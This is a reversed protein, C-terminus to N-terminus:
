IISLSNLTTCKVNSPKKSKRPQMFDHGPHNGDKHFFSEQSPSSSSSVRQLRNRPSVQSSSKFARIHNLRILVSSLGTQTFTSIFFTQASSCASKDGGSVLHSDLRSPKRIQVVHPFFSQVRRLKLRSWILNFMGTQKGVRTESTLASSPDTSTFRCWGRVVKVRWTKIIMVEKDIM